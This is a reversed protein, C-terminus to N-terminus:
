RMLPRAAQLVKGRHENSRSNRVTTARRLHRTFIMMLTAAGRVGTEDKEWEILGSAQYDDVSNWTLM